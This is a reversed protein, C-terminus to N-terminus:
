GYITNLKNSREWRYWRGGWGGERGAPRWHCCAADLWGAQARPAEGKNRESEFLVKHIHNNITKPDINVRYYFTKAVTLFTMKLDPDLDNPSHCYVLQVLEQMKSEVTFGLTTDDKNSIKHCLDNTISSIQQYQPHSLVEELSWRGGSMTITRVILEAESGVGKQQNSLWTKWASHLYPLIDVGHAIFAESSIQNITEHLLNMVMHWRKEDKHHHQPNSFEDIFEKMVINSDESFFSTIVDLIISTKAWAVRENCREPEFISSAALYYSWLLRMNSSDEINLHAYWKQIRSWELQHIAQCHNYVLKAMELYINNSVNPMRYLVKGTWVDDAGGYQELYYRTELRPLSAYWPVNLAYEVEGSLDKTVIWKDWLENTSQKELLFKQSFKKTDDLIKEEPFSMQSVRYLNFMVTVAETSQWQYCMYRRDKEFQQFVDPSVKYGYTRLVRFAMVTDDLDPLNCNRGLGIGREDWYRYLHDVCDKIESHFYHAIGLRQLRDVMWSREFMDVPYANPVGGNFKAVLTTLYALCKQDKTQMYVMSTPAASLVFSGNKAQLKLLKKWDLDKMGELSYHFITPTEYFIDKPIKKLKADRIAHIKKLIPSDYPMKIDLKQALEILTTFGLEFGSTFHEEKEHRIKNLNEYVFKMGKECKDAHVNWTTLAVVCALTNLLRDCASFLSSEGWSGDVLQNNAIWQLSSPFQPGGSPGNVNEILAVWATDYASITTAGDDMSGFILQIAKVYEEISHREKLCPLDSHQERKGFKIVGKWPLVKLYVQDGVNFTIPCRRPDAYM